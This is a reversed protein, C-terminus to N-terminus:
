SFLSLQRQTKRQIKKASYRLMAQSDLEALFPSPEPATAQGFIQRQRALSLFLGKRARTLAVYFLRKEEQSHEPEQSTQGPLDLPLIGQELAPLFVYEFELGKAAHMTLIQVKQARIRIKELDMELYLENLLAQWDQKRAFLTCLENLADTEPAFGHKLRTTLWATLREPDKQTLELRPVPWGPPMDVKQGLCAGVFRILDATCPDHFFPENEPVACPIGMKELSAKLRTGISRFRVLVAIDQPGVDMGAGFSDAQWHGTGGLLQLIREGIWAAENKENAGEFFIVEGQETTQPRVPEEPFLRNAQTLIQRTSRYNINLSLVQLQPWRAYLHQGIDHIAGRFGYIAQKVDGIGFLGHGNEPLLECIIALQLPSLDQVEDVLIQTWGPRAGSRLHELWTELLDTYDIRGLAQKQLTYATFAPVVRMQERAATGEAWIQKRKRADLDPTSATFLSFAETESLIRPPHGHVDQYAELALSHLTGAQVGKEAAQLRSQIERAAKRTFTLILIDRPSIQQRLLSRVRFLLTFTKGTGPGALILVPQPGAAAAIEQDQNAARQAQEPVQPVPRPKEPQPKQEAKAPQIGILSAGFALQRKEHDSFLRIRGYQGDFGGQRLVTGQRMRLIAQGLLPQKKELEQPPVTRLINMESGFSALLCSYAAFVKKTKPGVELIESLIEPLPVLSTFGQADPPQQPVTRDALQWIRNLVGVTLPKGCVPCIGKYEATAVPECMVGCQRHGDLHYKGEEPFFELTGLFQTAGAKRHLAAFIEFYDQQGSFINAERGLNAGSHADSNSILTLRDLDSWLWNMEPDSSLGTELAFIHPTLDEFCEELSDFGSKSGFLSFWPTWIHAPVLFAGPGTELVMELLNKSDLGLIPRGDSQLNGVQALRTNFNKVMDLTPMFVLNHVKRVQGNKKYISSIEASLLFVPPRSFPVGQLQPIERELNSTDRLTFLGNELPRLQEEMMQVWGPHTFDGTGIVDLGKVAAWAALSRFSLDKSTARSFRSHIHLDALFESM